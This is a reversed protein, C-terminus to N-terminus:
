PLNDLEEVRQLIKAKSTEIIEGGQIMEDLVVFVKHFNFVLDLECVNGFYSDLVEVTLHVMELAALENDKTDVCFIFYLGAYRRYVLQLACHMLINFKLKTSWSSVNKSSSSPPCVKHDRFEVFNTYKSHRSNILKHVEMTLKVKEEDEYPVFWKSARIKGQRNQVLFFNIM